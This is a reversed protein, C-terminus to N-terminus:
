RGKVELGNDEEPRSAKPCFKGGPYRLVVLGRIAAVYVYVYVVAPNDQRRLPAM